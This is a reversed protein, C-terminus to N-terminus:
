PGATTVTALRPSGDLTALEGVIDGGVRIALLAEGADTAATTKVVGSLLLYVGVTMTSERILVRGSTAYQCQVGSALLRQPALETLSGLLSSTPWQAQGGPIDGMPQMVIVGRARGPELM